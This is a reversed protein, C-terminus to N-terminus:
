SILENYCAILKDAETNWNFKQYVAEQGRKGMLEAEHPHELLWTIAEAIGKVDFPDVLLGCKAGDIIERWLPFDSAIVPLGAAMYEFLKVPQSQVYNINPHLIVLGVRMNALLRAIENRNKWGCFVVKGLSHYKQLENKLNPEDYRGALVLRANLTEPILSVAMIMEYIGREKSLGGIYTIEMPRKSYPLFDSIMIEEIIPFNQILVTKKNPFRRAIVPTAVAVGDIIRATIWEGAEAVKILLGRLSKNIWSKILIQRPLDEHVDYIVRKGQFKLVLGLPILEPDHFHYVNAKEQLARRYAM